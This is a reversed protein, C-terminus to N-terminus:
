EEWFEPPFDNGLVTCNGCAAPVLDYGGEDGVPDENDRYYKLGLLLADVLPFNPPPLGVQEPPAVISCSIYYPPLEEGPFLDDYNFYIRKSDVSSVQFFGIVNEDQDTNSFVNGSLFGPQSESFINDSEGFDKLARYFAYAEVSQVYQRVLISYRHSIIYNDRGLFRVRFRDISDDDLLTTSEIIIDNSADTSYCIQQQEPKPVLFYNVGVAVNGEYIFEYDLDQPNYRPAIIKYTEEYTYRYFKSNGTPDFSDVYVSVGEDGNENFDRAVYLDDIQSIGSLEESSAGYNRGDNTTVELQYTRGPEAMFQVNSEYQGSSVQQFEFTNGLDDSVRVQANNEPSPGEEELLYARSLLIVQRKMEDTITAEIVLASEFEEETVLDIEEVCGVMGLLIFALIYIRSRRM